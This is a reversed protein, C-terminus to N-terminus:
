IGGAFDNPDFSPRSTFGLVEGNRPDLVVAAGANAIGGDDAAKFADEIAKQIDLDITLQLRKGETPPAEELTRIERGVSNVGVRRAGDEGILYSNYVKEIGSQGMLDGSKLTGDGAVQVDSVEGLYGVVHAAM